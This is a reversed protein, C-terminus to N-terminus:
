GPRTSCRIPTRRPPSRSPESPYTLKSLVDPGLPPLGCRRADGELFTHDRHGVSWKTYDGRGTLAQDLFTQAIDSAVDPWLMTVLPM